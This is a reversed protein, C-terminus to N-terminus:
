QRLIHYIGYIVKEMDYMYHESFTKYKKASASLDEYFPSISILNKQIQQKNEKAKISCAEFSSLEQKYIPKYALDDQLEKAKELLLLAVNKAEEQLTLVSVAAEQLDFIIRTIAIEKKKQEDFTLESHQINSPKIIKVIRKMM